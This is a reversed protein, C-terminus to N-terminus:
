IKSRMICQPPISAASTILRPQTTNVLEFVSSDASFNWQTLQGDQSQHWIMEAWLEGARVGWIGGHIGALAVQFSSTINLSLPLQWVTTAALCHCQSLCLRLLRGTLNYWATSFFQIARDCKKVNRSGSLQFFSLSKEGSPSLKMSTGSLPYFPVGNWTCADGSCILWEM